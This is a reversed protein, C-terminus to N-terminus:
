PPGIAISTPLESHGLHSFTIDASGTSSDSNDPNARLAGNVRGRGPCASM